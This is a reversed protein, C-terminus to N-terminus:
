IFLYAFYPWCIIFEQFMKRLDTDQKLLNPKKKMTAVKKKSQTPAYCHKLPIRTDEAMFLKNSTNISYCFCIQDM